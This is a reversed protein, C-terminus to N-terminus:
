RHVHPDLHRGARETPAPLWGRDVLARRAVTALVQNGLANLYFGDLTPRGTAREAALAPRANVVAYGIEAAWRELDAEVTGVPRVSPIIVVLLNAYNSKTVDAMRALIAKTLESLYRRYEDKGLELIDTGRLRKRIFHLLYSWPHAGQSEALIEGPPPVPSNTLELEGDRLVFMPKAYDRFALTNRVIDEVFFGLIVIDPRYKVGEEELVRLQQDTGYGRVGMNLVEADDLQRELQVPWVDEDGAQEGFTFSDGLVVIRDVGPRRDYSYDHLSRWGQANTTVPPHDGRRHNRLNPKISWGFLPHYQDMSDTTEAVGQRHRELWQEKWAEGQSGLSITPSSGTAAYYIRVGAELLGLAILTAAVALLLNKVAPVASVVQVDLL